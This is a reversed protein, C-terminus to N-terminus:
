ARRETLFTYGVMLTTLAVVAAIAVIDYTEIM